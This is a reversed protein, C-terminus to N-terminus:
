DILSEFKFTGFCCNDEETDSSTSLLEVIGVLFLGVNPPLVGDVLM